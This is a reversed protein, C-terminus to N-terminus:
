ATAESAGAAVPDLVWRLRTILEDDFFAHSLTADVGLELLRVGHGWDDVDHDVAGLRTLMTLMASNTNLVYAQLTAVGRQQAAVVISAMLIRGLGHGHYEDIIAVALEAVDGGSDPRIFRGVGIGYGDDDEGVESPRDPDFAAIAVRDVGDLETLQGLLAGSLKPMATFFRTYRSDQSLHAFGAQLAGADEHRALRIRARGGRLPFDVHRAVRWM